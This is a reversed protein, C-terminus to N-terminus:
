FDGGLLTDINTEDLTGLDSTQEALQEGASGVITLEDAINQMVSDVVQDNDASSERVPSIMSEGLWIDGQETALVAVDSRTSQDRTAPVFLDARTVAQAASSEGEAQLDGVTLHGQTQLLTREILEGEPVGAPLAEGEANSSSSTTFGLDDLNIKLLSLDGVSGRSEVSLNDSVLETAEVNETIASGQSDTAPRSAHVTVTDTDTDLEVKSVEIDTEALELTLVSSKGPEVAVYISNRSASGFFDQLLIYKAKLQGLGSDVTISGDDALSTVAIEQANEGGQLFPIAPIMITYNGPMLDAFALMDADLDPTTEVEQGLLNTGVLMISGVQFQKATTDIALTITRPEFDTVEVTITGASSVGSGDSVVYDITDMGVFDTTPPTYLIGQTLPDVSVSGGANTNSDVSVTLTEGEDVNAPLDSLDFVRSEESARNLNVSLDSVPPADNEASVTFTVTGVSIGGGSDRITYPVHEIGNFNSAPTYALQTGDASQVAQGGQDPVGISDLVFPQNDVDRLDNSLVVFDATAADEVVEYGDDVATPPNDAPLVTVTVTVVDDLEGDSVVYTLTEVGVYDAAPTYSISLGDNSVVAVGGNSLSGVSTITLTEGTDPLDSDNQLVNLLNDSSNQDVSVADDIGSPPDNVSTVDVTVTANQQVGGADSVRYTFVVPGAFDDAPRFTLVGGSVTSTGGSTPQSASILSLSGGGANVTDNSLVDLVTDGSDEAVTYSDDVLTFSQGIALSTSGYAIASAPLANDLGFLLFESSVDDAPSSLINVNGSVLAEMRVTAILSESLGTASTASSVAGLENILGTEFTGKRTVSFAPDFEIASGPSPRILTEDFSIDAFAGYVGDMDIFPRIDLAFFKMLFEEGAAIGTIPNGELDTLDIRVASIPAESVDVTFSDSRVNGALDTLELIFTQPGLQESTPMWDIIGTSTELTAGAPGSLLTYVLGTGEESSILDTSYAAGVNAQTNATGSVVAPEITDYVVTLTPSFTSTQGTMAQRAALEYTGDGLAAINSTTIVVSSGSAIATGVVANSVQDVLDVTAGNQVGEVLFSMAGENTVSDSSSAGSDSSADLDVLTPALIGESEFVFAVSQTDSDSGSNGVVGAGPRVGVQVQITGVFDTAPAVTLLGSVGDMSVTGSSGPSLSQAFYTVDDGEVDTSSVQLQADTNVDTSQPTTIPDLWPQTNATDNGVTVVTTQSYSNGDQDTVTWIVNTSGTGTGTPKLMVVANETDYFVSVTSMTTDVDPRDGAGTSTESIAERVASGEVLQGFVSHNGDLYRTSVETIFFQSNNTDDSSKAFSMMNPGVHLVDRQFEDDFTGLSSGGSGTGTPDGGQIMFNDIVRHFIIGNYFDDEALAIVRGSARPARQEFLEAVMDGYGEMDIRISRNGSLVQAELLSPDDVTVTVTLPSGTPSYADVPIHLPAGINVTADSIPAFIPNESQPIAVGSRTSLDALSLVGVQRSGDPFIWTPFGTISHDIGIQNLSRDPNTVEVFPLDDGGDEFLEKQQTCAGCWAAGYYKTGSATLDKAFQVLDDAPEGEAVGAVQLATEAAQPADTGLDVVPGPDTFLLEMDGALMQRKELPELLLRTRSPDAQKTDRCLVSDWLDRLFRQRRPQSESSNSSFHM